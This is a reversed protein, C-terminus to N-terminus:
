HVVVGLYTLKGPELTYSDAGVAGGAVSVAVPAGLMVNPFFVDSGTDGAAWGAGDFRQTAAHGASIAVAHPAGTVHVFLQGHDAALPEGIQAAMSLMRSEVMARTSFLGGAALVAEPAIAVAELRYTNMPMGFLGPCPSGGAPPTVDVVTQARHPVCLQVRGNPPTTLTRTPDGRVTWTAGAIGCFRADTSDWDVM